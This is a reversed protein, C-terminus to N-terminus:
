KVVAIKYSSIEPNNGLLPDVLCLIKRKEVADRDSGIWHVGPARERPLTALAHLQDCRYKAEVEV